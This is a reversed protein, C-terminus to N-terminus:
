GSKFDSWSKGMKMRAENLEIVIKNSLTVSPINNGVPESKVCDHIGEAESLSGEVEHLM